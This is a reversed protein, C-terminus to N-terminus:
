LREARRQLADSLEGRVQRVDKTSVDFPVNEWLGELQVIRQPQERGAKGWLKRDIERSEEATRTHGKPTSRLSRRQTPEQGAVIPELEVLVHEALKLREVASLKKALELVTELTIATHKEM